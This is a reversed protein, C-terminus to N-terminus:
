STYLQDILSSRPTHSLSNLYMKIYGQLCGRFEWGWKKVRIAECFSVRALSSTPWFFSLNQNNSSKQHLAPGPTLTTVLMRFQICFCLLVIFNLASKRESALIGDWGRKKKKELGVVKNRTLFLHVYTYIYSNLTSGLIDAVSRAYLLCDTVIEPTYTAFPSSPSFIPTTKPFFCM